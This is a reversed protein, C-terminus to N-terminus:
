KEPPRGNKGLAGAPHASPSTPQNASWTLSAKGFLVIGNRMVPTATRWRPGHRKTWTWRDAATV